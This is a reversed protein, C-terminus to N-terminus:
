FPLFDFPENPKEEPPKEDPVKFFIDKGLIAQSIKKLAEFVEKTVIIDDNSDVVMRLGEFPNLPPDPLHPDPKEKGVYIWKVRYRSTGPQMKHLRYWYRGFYVYRLKTYGLNKHVVHIPKLYYGTPRIMTNYEYIRRRYPDYLMLVLEYGKLVRVFRYKLESSM